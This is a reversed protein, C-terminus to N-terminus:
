AAPISEIALQGDIIVLKYTDTIDTNADAYILASTSDQVKNMKTAILEDLETRMAALATTTDETKQTILTFVEAFTDVDIDAGELITTIKSDLDALTNGLAEVDTVLTEIKVPDIASLKTDVNIATKTVSNIAETLNSVGTDTDAVKLSPDFVMSGAQALRAGNEAVISSALSSAQTNADAIQTAQVQISNNIETDRALRISAEEGIKTEIFQKTVYYKYAM